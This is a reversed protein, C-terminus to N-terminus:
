WNNIGSINNMILQSDYIGSYPLYGFGIWTPMAQNLEPNMGQIQAVAWAFSYTPSCAGPYPNPGAVWLDDFDVAVESATSGFTGSYGGQPLAGMFFLGVNKM